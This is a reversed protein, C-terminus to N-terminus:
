SSVCCSEWFSATAASPPLSFDRSRCMARPLSSGRSRTSSSRSGPLGNRSIAGSAALPAIELFPSGEDLLQDIRERPLLKGRGVHRERSKEPGGLATQALRKQLEGALARQAINNAEFVESTTDVLSKITHM